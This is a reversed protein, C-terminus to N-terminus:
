LREFFLLPPIRRVNSNFNEFCPERLAFARNTMGGSRSAKRARLSRDRHTRVPPQPCPSGSAILKYRDPKSAPLTFPPPTSHTPPAPHIPNHILARRARFRYPCAPARLSRMALYAPQGLQLCLAGKLWTDGQQMREYAKRARRAREIKNCLM